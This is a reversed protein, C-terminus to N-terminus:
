RDFANESGMRILQDLCFMRVFFESKDKNTKCKQKQINCFQLICTEIDM